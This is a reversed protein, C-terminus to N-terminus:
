FKPEGKAARIAERFWGRRSESNVVKRVIGELFYHTLLEDALWRTTLSVILFFKTHHSGIFDSLSSMDHCMDFLKTQTSVPVMERSPSKYFQQAWSSLHRFLMGFKDRWYRVEEPEFATTEALDQIYGSHGYQPGVSSVEFETHSYGLERNRAVPKDQEPNDEGEHIDITLRSTSHATLGHNYQAIQCNSQQGYGHQNCGVPPRLKANGDGPAVRTPPVAMDSCQSARHMLGDQASADVRFMELVPTLLGQAPLFTRAAPNGGHDVPRPGFVSYAIEAALHGLAIL